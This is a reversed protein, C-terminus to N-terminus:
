RISLGLAPLHLTNTINFCRKGKRETSSNIHLRLEDASYICTNLFSVIWTFFFEEPSLLSCRREWLFSGDGQLLGIAAESSQLVSLSAERAGGSATVASSTPMDSGQSEKRQCLADWLFNPTYVQIFKTFLNKRPEYIYIFM